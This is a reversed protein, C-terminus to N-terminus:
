HLRRGTFALELQGSPPQRLCAWQMALYLTLLSHIAIAINDWSFYQNPHYTQWLTWEMSHFCAHLQVIIINQRYICSSHRYCGIGKYGMWLWQYHIAETISYIELSMIANVFGSTDYKQASCMVTLSFQLVNWDSSRQWSSVLHPILHFIARTIININFWHRWM